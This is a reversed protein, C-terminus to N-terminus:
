GGPKCVIYRRLSWASLKTRGTYGPPPTLRLQAQGHWWGNLCLTAVNDEGGTDGLSVWGTETMPENDWRLELRFELNAVPRTCEVKVVWNVTGAVHTSYHPYRGLIACSIVDAAHAGGGSPEFITSGLEEERYEGEESTETGGEPEPVNEPTGTSVKAQAEQWLTTQHAADAAAGAAIWPAITALYPIAKNEPLPPVAGQTQLPQGIQPTYTIGDQAITGNALATTVGAAGLWNYKDIPKSNSPVGFETTRETTLLKTATASLSATGIINGQLDSLQLVAEHGDEQSAVLGGIGTIQRTWTGTAENVTWSTNSGGAAYHSITNTTKTGETLSGEETITKLTRGEPDLQYTNTQKGQTQHELQGDAYYGSIIETGGADTAPLKTINGLNDYTIGEDTLRNAEDYVHRQVEGGETACEGKSGPKRTTLSTRASEENYAYIRTTCGEGAPTEQVQTLRGVTDYGYHNTALSSEQTLLEGHISAIAADKFWVCNEACNSTKTYLLSTAEGVPNYTYTATMGNPYTESTLNGEVDYSAKFAGAASDELESLMGTTGNYVYKQTAKLGDLETADYNISSLRGYTDYSYSTTNGAADTYKTLQGLTNYASSITETKGGTETSQEIVAGTETSYKDTVTPVATDVSASVAATIPRGAQDFTTTKTRTTSGFTETTKEAQDYMNYREIVTAPLPPPGGTETMPQAAAETRCPLGEWERHEGCEKHESNAAATYYITKTDHVAQSDPVWKEIRHNGADAVYFDGAPTVAIGQPANLQGEGVGHTAISQLFHGEPNFEEIRNNASDLVFLDSASNFAIGEPHNFQGGGNGESGIQGVWEGKLNLIEVRDNRTDSVYVDSGLVKIDSPDDFQVHGTGLSGYAALLTGTPGYEVIRNKDTDAVWADGSSDLAVAGPCSLQGRGFERVYKGEAKLVQVRDNACEAVLVEGTSQNVTLGTPGSMQGNGEGKSGYTAVYKGQDTFEQVDDAENDTVLVNGSSAVAPEGTYLFEGHGSGDTGWQTSYVERVAGAQAPTFEQVRDGGTESTYVTGSSGIALGSVGSFEGNGGGPVGWETLFKGAPNFEEVRENGGDVVFLDGTGPAAVVESPSEFQGAGSGLGGFSSLYEGKHTFMVVSHESTVYLTGDDVSVDGPEKLHGEGVSALYKGEESFEEVKNANYDAVWVEGAPTVSIGTPESLAGEGSSGFSRLEEGTPSFVFIMNHGSDAVFVDGTKPSVALGWSGSFKGLKSEFAGVFTGSSSFREVRGDGRDDVFIEGSSGVAVASAEKFQGEGSGAKGFTSAFVPPSVTEANGGPSRTEEIAGTGENYKTSSILDMGAPDVTTSTAQQLKWGLGEQGSYGTLTTRVDREEGSALLAGDTTKTVLGHEEVEGKSNLPAGEDYFYRVHNRANVEEGSALKVKHEPGTTELLEGGETNYKSETDLKKAAEAPNAEKLAKERNDPSLARVVDNSENYETTSIAGSPTAVNVTRAHSDLYYITGHTYEKAPWGQLEQPSFIAAAYAPVDSQAWKGVATSTMSPLGTGSLPVNYEVTSTTNNPESPAEFPGESITPITFKKIVHNDKDIIWLIKNAGCALGSPWNFQDNGSGYEGYNGILTGTSTLKKIGYETAVWVNGSSDVAVDYTTLTTYKHLYEGSSTLEQVRGYGGTETVWLDGSSNLAIAAPHEFEGNEAGAKGFKSVYAGTESFQELRNNAGDSVWFSGSSTVAIDAPANFQGNGSGSIGARCSSTCVEFESKGDHVGYGWMRIFTGTSSFEQVRNNGTDVVLIDGSSNIAIGKPEKFEGEKTGSGGFATIYEGLPGYEELKSTSTNTMWMDGSATLALHWAYESVSFKSDYYLVTNVVGATSAGRTTGGANTASVEAVLAHGVQAETPRYSSNVAGVIPTCEGGGANCLEWQYSYTLPSNEWRGQSVSVTAGIAPEQQSLEPKSIMVPAKGSGLAVSAKPRTVSLVRGGTMDNELEGYNFLWPEQGPPAIATVHGEEDYGYTTKLAPEVSPNWEARLRGKSDYLYRAVEVSKMKEEAASWAVFMVGALHGKYAGWESPAEGKATTAGEDYEFELARCGRELTAHEGVHKAPECKATAHPALELMPEVIKKGEIEVTTYTDTMTDTAVPGESVTPMWSNAGSPLTFRTTEGKGRDELLYEAEGKGGHELYTLTLNSDGPPAKFSGGTNTFHALGEPGVVMVSKDPLVELSALSGLSLTWQPGLPGEAGENPNMSDYHRTVSLAGRGGSESVDTAELAYDGSQPNVSGPGLGVPSAPDVELTYSRPSSVNGANDTAQVTLTHMGAGLERGNLTWEASATCPGPSCSGAPTGLEHGDVAIEISKVGSSEVAGEGDTAQVHVREPVEGLTFEQEHAENEKSALGSVTIGHPPAADVQLTTEGEYHESSSTHEMPDSAAVRIHNRGEKVYAKVMAYTVIEKYTQSCEVGECGVKFESGKKEKDIFEHSIATTWKGAEEVEVKASGVGLGFDSSEWEISGGYPGIWGTKRYFATAHTGAPESLFLEPYEGALEFTEPAADETHTAMEMRASNKEEGAMKACSVESCVNVREFSNTPFSRTLYEGKPGELAEWATVGPAPAYNFLGGYISIESIKSDGNTEGTTWAGWEESVYSKSYNLILLSAHNFKANASQIYHLGENVPEVRIEPDVMIPLRYDSDVADVSVTVVDGAVSISAPVPTGEADRASPPAIAAIVEGALQVQVPGGSVPQSLSAGAPMGVRYRLAHPSRQSALMAQLDVGSPTLQAMASVDTGMSAGAWFVVSGDVNGSAASAAEDGGGALPTVSVGVGPLSVGEALDKPVSVAVAGRGASFSRGNGDESPSLDLAAWSGDAGQVALPLASEVLGLEGGPLSIDAVHADVYRAVQSGSPLALGVGGLTHEVTAPFAEAALGEAQQASLGEYSTQSTERAQVAEPASRRAEAELQANGPFLLGSAGGTGPVGGFGGPASAQEEGMAAAPIAALWALVLGLCALRVILAKWSSPM